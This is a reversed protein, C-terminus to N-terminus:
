ARYYSAFRGIARKHRLPLALFKIGCQYKHSDVNNCYRVEGVATVAHKLGFPSEKITIGVTLEKPLYYDTVVAAGDESIDCVEAEFRSGKAFTFQRKFYKDIELIGKLAVKIRSRLRTEM